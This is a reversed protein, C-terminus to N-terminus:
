LLLSVAEGYSLRGAVQCVMEKLRPSWMRDSLGQEKDWASWGRGCFACHYYAREIRAEGCVSKVWRRRYSVFRAHAGCGCLLKSGRYTAKGTVRLLLVEFLCQSVVDTAAQTLEEVQHLDGARAHHQAWEIIARCLDEKAATSTAQAM